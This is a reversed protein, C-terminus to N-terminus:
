LHMIDRSLHLQMAASIWKPLLSRTLIGGRRKILKWLYGHLRKILNVLSHSDATTRPQLLNASVRTLPPLSPWRCCHRRQQTYHPPLRSPLLPPRNESLDFGSDDWVRVCARGTRDTNLLHASGLHSRVNRNQHALPMPADFRHKQQAAECEQRDQDVPKGLLLGPLGQPQM